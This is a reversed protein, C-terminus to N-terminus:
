KCLSCKRISHRFKLNIINVLFNFGDKILRIGSVKSKTWVVPIEVIKMNLRHAIYLMEAEFFWIRDYVYPILEHAVERKIAKFGCQVDKIPLGLFMNILFVHYIKSLTRRVLDRRLTSERLYRSGVAIDTGKRVENILSPFAGLSTSLDIDMYTLIDAQSNQWSNFVGM